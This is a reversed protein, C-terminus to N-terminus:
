FSSNPTWVPYMTPVVILTLLVATTLSTLLEPPFRVRDANVSARLRDLGAQRLQNAADIM